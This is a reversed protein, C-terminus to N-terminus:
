CRRQRSQRGVVANKGSSGAGGRAGNGGPLNLFAVSLDFSAAKLTLAGGGAGSGGVAGNAGNPKSASSLAGGGGDGGTGGAASLVVIGAGGGAISATVAGTSAVSISGAKGGAGGSTGNQGALAGTAGTLGQGGDARLASFNPTIFQIGGSGANLTINGGVAPAAAATYNGSFEIVPSSTASGFVIGGATALTGPKLAGGTTGDPNVTLTGSVGTTEVDLMNAKVGSRSTINAQEAITGNALLSVNGGSGTGQGSASISVYRNLTLDSGSVMTINGGTGNTGNPALSNTNIRTTVINGTGDDGGRVNIVGSPSMNASSVTLAGTINGHSDATVSGTPQATAVTLNGGVTGHATVQGGLSISNPAVLTISGATGNTYATFVNGFQNVQLSASNTMLQSNVDVTINGGNTKAVNQYAILEINGGKLSPLLNPPPSGTISLLVASANLSTSSLTINGGSDAAMPATATVTSGGPIASNASFAHISTTPSPQGTTTIHAGAIVVINAGSGDANQASVLTPVTNGSSTTNFTVNGSAIIAVNERFQIPNTDSVTIDGANNFYTPDGNINTAGIVLNPTSVLLNSVGAITNLRGTVLGANMGFAGNGANVNLQQSLLNGGLVSINGDHASNLMINNAASLVGGRNDISLNKTAATLSLDGASSITGANSVSNALISFSLNKVVNNGVGPIGGTPVVTTILGGAANVLNNVQLSAVTAGPTAFAFFRGANSIDGTMTLPSNTFDRVVTVGTPVTLSSIAASPSLVASGAVANGLAGIGLSQTNTNLLQQVALAEAPTLSTGATVSMLHGGVNIVQVHNFSAPVVFTKHTSGLNLGSPLSANVPSALAPYSQGLFCASLGASILRSVGFTVRSNPM